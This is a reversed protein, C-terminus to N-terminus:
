IPNKKKAVSSSIFNTKKSSELFDRLLSVQLSTCRGRKRWSESKRTVVTFICRLNVFGHRNSKKGFCLPKFPIRTRDHRSTECVFIELPAKEKVGRGCIALFLLFFFVHLSDKM